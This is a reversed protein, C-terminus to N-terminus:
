ANYYNYYDFWDIGIEHALQREINEAFRHERKYPCNPENGAEDAVGGQEVIQKDFLDIDEEKIGLKETLMQETLEHMAILFAKPYDEPTKMLARVVLTGDEMYFYDGVGGNRILQSDSVYEIITKRM